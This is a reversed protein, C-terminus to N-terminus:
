AHNNKRSNFGLAIWLAVSALLCAQAFRDGHRTYFTLDSQPATPSIAASLAGQTRPELDSVIRGRSDIACTIGTNTCRVMPRRNEVCRFIANALHQRSACDPDFWSDNTQNVLWTAGARAARRALYPLTDEFCILVSFPHQAHDPLRFLTTREGRSFSSQIPTLANIMPIKGEFPIYEGLLVLHQKNYTDILQGRRNFLMAANYYRPRGAAPRQADISGALLAVGRATLRRVLAVSRASFRVSEPLATEPWVVLDFAPESLARATVEELRSYVLNPDPLIWSGVEPINPQILCVRVPRESSPSRGLVRQGYGLALAGLLLAAGLEVPSNFRAGRRHRRVQLLTMAIGVNVLVMLGSVLYVGGFEAIQILPLCRYQSVGLVNWPFGTLMWGRLYESAAWVAALAAMWGINEFPARRAWGGPRAAVLVASPVWYLACYASLSVTGVWTIHRMWVLTGVFFLTGALWGFWAACRKPVGSCAWLLPVLAFWGCASWGCPPFSLFLLLGSGLAGFIRRKNQPCDPFLKKLNSAFSMIRVM